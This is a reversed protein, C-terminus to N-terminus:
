CTKILRKGTIFKSNNCANRIHRRFFIHLNAIENCLIQKINYYLSYSTSIVFDIFFARINLFSNYKRLWATQEINTWCTAWHQGRREGAAAVVAAAAAAVGAAPCVAGTAAAGAGLM